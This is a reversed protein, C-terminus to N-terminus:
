QRVRDLYAQRRAPSMTLISQEAWGYAWALEHVDDVLRGAANQVERWLLQLADFAVSHQAACAPCTNDLLIEAGAHLADAAEAAARLAERPLRDAPSPAGDPDIADVCRTLLLFRAAEDTQEGLAAALDASDSLRVRLLYGDHTAEGHDVANDLISCFGSVPAAMEMPTGCARCAFVM